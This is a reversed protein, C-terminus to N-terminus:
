NVGVHARSNAVVDVRAVAGQRAFATADFMTYSLSIDRVSKAIGPDLVFRMPMILSQGATLTQQRFCFCETKHFQDVISTPILSPIAQGVITRDTPNRVRFKVETLEGPHVVVSGVLPEFEWPMGDNTHTLFNVRVTRTMDPRVRAADYVYAVASTRGGLGTVKCILTYMPVMAFGFGFMGTAILLLRWISVRGSPTRQEEAM